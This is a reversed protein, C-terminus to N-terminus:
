PKGLYAEAEAERGRRFYSLEKLERLLDSADKWREKQMADNILMKALQDKRVEDLPAALLKYAEQRSVEKGSIEGTSIYTEAAIVMKLTKGISGFRYHESGKAFKELDLRRPAREWRLVLNGGRSFDPGLLVGKPWDKIELPCAESVVTGLVTRVQARIEWKGITSFIVDKDATMCLQGYEAWIGGAPIQILGPTHPALITSFDQVRQWEKGPAKVQTFCRFPPDLLPGSIMISSRSTNTIIVKYAIGDKLIAEHDSLLLKVRFFEPAPEDAACPMATLCILLIGACKSLLTFYSSTVVRQM